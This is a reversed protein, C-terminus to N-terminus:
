LTRTRHGCPTLLRRGPHLALGNVVTLTSDERSESGCVQDLLDVATARVAALCTAAPPRVHAGYPTPPHGTQQDPPAALADLLECPLDILQVPAQGPDDYAVCLPQELPHADTRVAGDREQDMPSLGSRSFVSADKVARQPTLGM